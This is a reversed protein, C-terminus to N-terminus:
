KHFPMSLLEFIGKIIWEVDTNVLETLKKNFQKFALKELATNLLKTMEPNKVDVAFKKFQQDHKLLLYLKQFSELIPRGYNLKLDNIFNIFSPKVGIVDSINTTNINNVCNTFHQIIYDLDLGATKVFNKYDTWETVNRVNENLKKWEKSQLYVIAAQFNKDFSLHQDFVTKLPSKPLAALLKFTLSETKLEDNPHPCTECSLLM